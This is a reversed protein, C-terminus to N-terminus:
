SGIRGDLHSLAEPLLDEAKGEIKLHPIGEKEARTVPGYNVIAIPIQRNKAEVVFRYGSFVM